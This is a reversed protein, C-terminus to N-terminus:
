PLNERYYSVPVLCPPRNETKDGGKNQQAPSVSFRGEHRLVSFRGQTRRGARIHRIGILILILAIYSMLAANIEPPNGAFLAYVQTLMISYTIFTM